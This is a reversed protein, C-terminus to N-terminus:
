IPNYEFKKYKAGIRCWRDYFFSGTNGFAPYATDPIELLYSEYANLICTGSPHVCVREFGRGYNRHVHGHLMYLPKYKDLLRNFCSFGRHPLDPLDGYGAAPAHTVLLDVGGTFRIKKELRRTRAKMQPETYMDVSEKYKMSGGLGAIRLGNHNYVQEEICICGEPPRRDYGSDHNGRVFLLPCHGFTVLFQLYNSNLDGCSIILDIDELKEPSFYDWLSKSEVDAVVLIKM